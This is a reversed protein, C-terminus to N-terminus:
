AGAGYTAPHSQSAAAAVPAPSITAVASLGSPPRSGVGRPRREGVRPPTRQCRSLLGAADEFGRPRPTDLAYRFRVSPEIMQRFLRSNSGRSLLALVPNLHSVRPRGDARKRAM